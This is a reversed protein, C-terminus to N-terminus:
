IKLFMQLVNFFEQVSQCCPHFCRSFVFHDHGEHARVYLVDSAASIFQGTTPLFLVHFRADSSVRTSQFAVFTRADWSQFATPVTLHEGRLSLVRTTWERKTASHIQNQPSFPTSLLQPPPHKHTTYRLADCRLCCWFEACVQRVAASAARRTFRLDRGGRPAWRGFHEGQQLVCMASCFFFAGRLYLSLSLSSFSIDCGHRKLQLSIFYCRIYISSLVTHQKLPLCSRLM